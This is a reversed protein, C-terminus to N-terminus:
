KTFPKGDIMIVDGAKANQKFWDVEAQTSAKFPDARTGAGSPAKGTEDGPKPKNAGDYGYKQRFKGGPDYIKALDQRGMDRLQGAVAEVNLRTVESSTPDAPDSPGKATHQKELRDLVDRDGTTLREKKQKLGTDVQKGSRTLGVTKGDETQVYSVIDGASRSHQAADTKRAETAQVGIRELSQTHDQQGEEKRFGSLRTDRETDIKAGREQEQARYGAQEARGRSERTGALQDALLLSDRQLAERQAALAANGATESIAAGMRKLGLGINIMGTM